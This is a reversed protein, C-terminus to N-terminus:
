SQELYSVYLEVSTSDDAVAVIEDGAIAVIKAGETFEYGGGSPLPTDTGSINQGGVTVTVHHQSATDTNTARLGIITVVSGTPVTYIVTGAGTSATGSVRNLTNAM